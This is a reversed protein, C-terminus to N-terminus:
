EAIYISTLSKTCGRVEYIHTIGLSAFAQITHSYRGLEQGTQRNIAIVGTNTATIQILM